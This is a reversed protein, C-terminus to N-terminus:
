ASGAPPSPRRGTRAASPGSRRCTRGRGPTRRRSARAPRGGARGLVDLPREVGTLAGRSSRNMALTRSSVWAQASRRTTSSRSRAPGRRGAPRRAAGARRNPRVQELRRELRVRQVQDPEVLFALRQPRELDLPDAVAARVGRVKSGGSGARRCRTRRRGAQSMMASWCGTPPRGASRPGRDGAPDELRGPVGVWRHRPSASPESRRAPSPRRCSRSGATSGTTPRRRPPAPAPPAARRRRRWAEGRRRGSRPRRITLNRTARSAM